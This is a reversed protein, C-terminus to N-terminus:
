VPSSVRERCSARGIEQREKTLEDPTIQPLRDRQIRSEETPSLPRGEGVAKITNRTSAADVKDALDRSIDAM